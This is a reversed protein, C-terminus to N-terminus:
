PAPPPPGVIVLLDFDGKRTWEKVAEPKVWDKLHKEAMKEALERKGPKYWVESPTV